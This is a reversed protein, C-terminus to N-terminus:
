NEVEDGDGVVARYDGRCLEFDHDKQGAEDANASPFGGANSIEANEEVTLPASAAPRRRYSSILNGDKKSM